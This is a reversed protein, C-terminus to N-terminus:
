RAGTAPSPQLYQDLWDLVTAWWVRRNRPKLVWHGEDPFYLFKAPVGMKKLATFAQYGESLDVRYDLQSHVVLMAALEARLELPVVERVSLGQPTRRAASSGTWSGCSRPPATCARRISCATTTWWSKSATRTVRSGISWTAGTHPAQRAWARRTWM